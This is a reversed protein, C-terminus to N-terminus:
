PRASDNFEKLYLPEAYALETFQLQTKLSESLSAAAEPTISIDAFSANPHKCVKEWKASGSGFFVIPGQELQELFSTENLIMACPSIILKLAENYLATFIEM